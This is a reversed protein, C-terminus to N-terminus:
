KNSISLFSNNTMDVAVAILESEVINGPHIASWVIHSKECKPRNEASKEWPM